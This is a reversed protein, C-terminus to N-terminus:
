SPQSKRFAACKGRLRYVAGATALGVVALIVIIALNSGPWDAGIGEGLVFVGVSMLLGGVILKLLNEPVLSLPRRVLLGIAMVAAAAVVAGLAAYSITGHTSGVALVIFVVELGEMLVVNFAAIAALYFAGAGREQRSLLETQQAFAADEDHLAMVGASRLIAKRLWRIGFLLLLVGVVFQLPALPLTTLLSGLISVLAALVVLALGGGIWAPRWGRAMSVALLITFAEVVEVFSGLFAAGM